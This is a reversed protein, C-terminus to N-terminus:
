VPPEESEGIPLHTQGVSNEMSPKEQRKQRRGKSVGRDKGEGDRRGQEEKERGRGSVGEREGAGM